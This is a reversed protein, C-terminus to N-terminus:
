KINKYGTLSKLKSNDGWFAMPEYDPYPYYGLNLKIKWNNKKLHKKVLELVSIPLGTCINIIGIDEKLYALRAIQDAVNTVNMFDRIQKGESMNFELEGNNVATELQSLLSKKSQGEGYMYFLRAWTMKFDLKNKLFELKHRLTNKAFGYPTVPNPIQSESLEGDMLGFEFCTGSILISDLGDEIIKKIFSYQIVLEKEYHHLSKFNSVNNWALHILVDPKGIKEFLNEKPLDSLDMYVKDIEKFNNLELSKSRVIVVIKNESKILNSILHRGIFGTAGTVAIKM